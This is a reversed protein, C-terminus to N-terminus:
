GDTQVEEPLIEAPIIQGTAFAYGQAHCGPCELEKLHTKEPHVAIWRHGCRWCMTERVVHPQYDSMEVVSDEPSQLDPLSAASLVNGCNLCSYIPTREPLALPNLPMSELFKLHMPYRCRPCINEM